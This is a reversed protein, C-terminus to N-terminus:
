PLRWGVSLWGDECAVENLRMTGLRPFNLPPVAIEAPFGEGAKARANMNKALNKRFGVEQASLRRPYQPDFGTPFVDIDGERILLMGDGNQVVRYVVVFDWNKYESEDSKLLSSRIRLSLRGDDFHVAVPAEANLEMSWPKFEPPKKAQDTQQDAANGIMPTSSSQSQTPKGGTPTKAAAKKLWPPVRGTLQPPVDAREQGLRAGALALPLYNNVASEHVQMTMDNEASTGPPGDPAALQNEKAVAAHVRVASSTSSLTLQTPFMARRILPARFKEVYDKRAAALPTVLQQDFSAILKQEAHRSAISEAQRKQQGAKKWAIKEVLRHGFRGGTKSISQIHTNTAAAGIAGGATFGRDYIAVRKVAALTTVGSSRIRVPKHYGSTQSYSHASLSVALEVHDDAYMPKLSINGRTLAQGWITTGLICDTVPQAKSVPETPVCAIFRASLQGWVNPRVYRSRVAAVLQPSDDLTALAGIVRGVQWATETTPTAAHRALERQLSTLLRDYDKKPDRGKTKSAEAWPALLRYRALVKALNTFPKLELGPKNDRLRLLVEDLSALSKADVKANDGLQAALQEWKLYKKWALAFSSDVGIAQDLEYSRRRLEDGVAAFEGETVPTHTGKAGGAMKALQDAPPEQAKQPMKAASPAALAPGLEQAAASPNLMSGFFASWAIAAAFKALFRDM